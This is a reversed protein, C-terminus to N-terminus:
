AAQQQEMYQGAGPCIDLPDIHHGLLAAQQSIKLAYNTTGLWESNPLKGKDMWGQVAQASCGCIKGVLAQGGAQKIITQIDMHRLM